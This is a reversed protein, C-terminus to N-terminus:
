FYTHLIESKIFNCVKTKNAVRISELGWDSKTSGRLGGGGWRGVWGGINEVGTLFRPQDRESVNAVFVLQM